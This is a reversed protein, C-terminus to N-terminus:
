ARVPTIRERPVRIASKDGEGTPPSGQPEQLGGGDDPDDDQPDPDGPRWGTLLLNIACLSQIAFPSAMRVLQAVHGEFAETTTM